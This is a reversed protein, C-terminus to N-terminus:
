EKVQDGVLPGLAVRCGYTTRLQGNWNLLLTPVVASLDPSGPGVFLVFDGIFIPDLPGSFDENEFLATSGNKFHKSKIKM